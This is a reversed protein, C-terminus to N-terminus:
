GPLGNRFDSRNTSRCHTYSQKEDHEGKIQQLHFEVFAQHFILLIM